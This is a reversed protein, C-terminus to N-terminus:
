ARAQCMGQETTFKSSKFTKKIPKKHRKYPDCCTKQLFEYKKLFLSKHHLCVTTLNHVETRLKLINLEEESLESANEIAKQTVYSTKHCETQTIIGVSCKDEM